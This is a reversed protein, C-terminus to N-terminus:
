VEKLKNRPTIKYVIEYLTEHPILDHAEQNDMVKLGMLIMM